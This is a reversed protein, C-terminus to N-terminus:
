DEYHDIRGCWTHWTLEFDILKVEENKMLINPGRLDELSTARVMSDAEGSGIDIYEMVVMSLYGYPADNELVGIKGLYFLQSGLTERALLRNFSNLWLTRINSISSEAKGITIHVFPPHLDEADTTIVKL